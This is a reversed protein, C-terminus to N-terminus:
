AFCVFFLYLACSTYTVYRKTKKQSSLLSTQITRPLIVTSLRPTMNVCQQLKFRDFVSPKESFLCQLNHLLTLSLLYFKCHRAWSNKYEIVHKYCNVQVCLSHFNFLYLASLYCSILFEIVFNVCCVQCLSSEQCCLQAGPTRRHRIAFM